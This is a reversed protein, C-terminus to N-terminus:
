GFVSFSYIVLKELPSKCVIPNAKGCFKRTAAEAVRPYAPSAILEREAKVEPTESTFVTTTSVSVLGIM